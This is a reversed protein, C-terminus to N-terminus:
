RFSGGLAVDRTNLDDLLETVMNMCLAGRM